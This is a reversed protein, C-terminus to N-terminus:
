NTEVGLEGLFERLALAEKAAESAAVIEAETQTRAVERERM